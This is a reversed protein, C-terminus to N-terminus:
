PFTLTGVAEIGACIRKQGFCPFHASKKQFGHCIDALEQYQQWDIHIYDLLL